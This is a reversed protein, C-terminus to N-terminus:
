SCPQTAMDEWVERGRKDAKEQERGGHPNADKVVLRRCAQHSGQIENKWCRALAARVEGQHLLATAQHGATGERSTGPQTGEGERRSM